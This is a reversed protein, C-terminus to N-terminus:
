LFGGAWGVVLCFPAQGEWGTQDPSERCTGSKEGVGERDPGRKWGALWVDVDVKQSTVISSGFGGHAARENPDPPNPTGEEEEEDVGHSARCRWRREVDGAGIEMQENRGM